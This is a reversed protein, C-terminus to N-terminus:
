VLHLRNEAMARMGAFHHDDAVAEALRYWERAGEPDGECRHVFDGACVMAMPLHCIYRLREQEEVTYLVVRKLEDLPVIGLKDVWWYYPILPPIRRLWFAHRAVIEHSIVSIIAASSNKSTHPLIPSTLRLLYMIDHQMSRSWAYAWYKALLMGDRLIWYRNNGFIKHNYIDIKTAHKVAIKEYRSASELDGDWFSPYAALHWVKYWGYDDHLANLDPELKSFYASLDLASGHRTIDIEMQQIQARVKGLLIISSGLGIDNYVQEGRESEARARDLDGLVLHVDAYDHRMLGVVQQEEEAREAEELAEELLSQAALYELRLEHCRARIWKQVHLPQGTAEFTARLILQIAADIGREVLAGLGATSSCEEDTAEGNGAEQDVGQLLRMRRSNSRRAPKLRESRQQEFAEELVARDIKLVRTFGAILHPDRRVSGIKGAVYDYYASDDCGVAAAVQAVSLGLGERAAEMIKGVPSLPRTRRRGRRGPNTHQM